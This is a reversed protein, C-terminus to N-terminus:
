ETNREIEGRKSERQIWQNESEKDHKRTHTHTPAHTHAHAHTNAHRNVVTQVTRCTFTWLSNKRTLIQVIILPVCHTHESSAFTQFQSYIIKWRHFTSEM